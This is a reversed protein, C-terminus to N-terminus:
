LNKDSKPFYIYYKTFLVCFIAFFYPALATMNGQTVNWLFITRLTLGLLGVWNGLISIGKANKNKYFMVLQPVNSVMVISAGALGIFELLKNM